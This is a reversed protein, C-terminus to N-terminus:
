VKEEWTICDAPFLIIIEQIIDDPYESLEMIEILGTEKRKRFVEPCLEICTNCDTCFASDIVPIKKLEKERKWELYQGYTFGQGLVSPNYKLTGKKCQNCRTKSCM